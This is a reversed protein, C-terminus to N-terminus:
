RDNLLVKRSIKTYQSKDDKLEDYDKKSIERIIFRSAFHGVDFELFCKENIDIFICWHDGYYYELHDKHTEDRIQKLQEKNPREIKKSHVKVM